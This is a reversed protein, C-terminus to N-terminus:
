FEDSTVPKRVTNSRVTATPEKAQKYTTGEYLRHFLGTERAVAKVFARQTTDEIDTADPDLIANNKFDSVALSYWQSVCEGLLLRVKVSLSSGMAYIDSEWMVGPCHTNLLVEADGWSIYDMGQKQIVLHEYPVERNALWNSGTFLREM